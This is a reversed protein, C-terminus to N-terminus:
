EGAQKPLREAERIVDAIETLRRLGDSSLGTARLAIGRVGSDRLGALLATDVATDAEGYFYTIPVRFTRSLAKVLAASPNERHGNRLHSIHSPTTPVGLATVSEAILQNSWRDSGGPTRPVTQILHTLLEGFTKGQEHFSM